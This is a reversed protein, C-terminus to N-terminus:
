HMAYPRLVWSAYADPGDTLAMWKCTLHRSAPDINWRCVLQPHPRRRRKDQSANGGEIVIPRIM